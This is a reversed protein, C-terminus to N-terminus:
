SKINNKNLFKERWSKTYSFKREELLKLFEEQSHEVANDFNLYKALKAKLDKNAYEISNLDPSYPPLHVFHIDMIEAIASVIKAHHIKANDLTIIIPGFPNCKKIRQLFSLMGEKKSADSNMVVSNGVLTMFGFMTKSRIKGLKYKIKPTNLVRIKNPNLQISTEDLFGFVALGSLIM